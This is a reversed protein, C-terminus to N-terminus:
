DCLMHMTSEGWREGSVDEVRLKTPSLKEKLLARIQEERSGEGSSHNRTQHMFPAVVSRQAGATRQLLSSAIHRVETRRTAQPM